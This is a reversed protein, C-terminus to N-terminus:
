LVELNQKHGEFCSIHLLALVIDGEMILSM